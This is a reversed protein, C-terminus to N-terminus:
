LKSLLKGQFVGLVTIMVSISTVYFCSSISIFVIFTGTTVITRVTFYHSLFGAPLCTISAIAGALTIPWSAQSYTCNLTRTLALYLVGGSRFVAFMFLNIWFCAFAIIWPRLEKVSKMSLFGMGGATLMRGTQQSRERREQRKKASIRVGEM